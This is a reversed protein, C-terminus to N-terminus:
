CVPMDLGIQVDTPFKRVHALVDDLRSNRFLVPTRVGRAHAVRREIAAHTQADCTAIDVYPIFTCHELDIADSLLPNRTTNKFRNAALQQSLWTGPSTNPEAKLKPWLELRDMPSLRAFVPALATIAAEAPAIRKVLGARESATLAYSGNAVCWDVAASADPQQGLALLRTSTVVIAEHLHSMRPKSPIPTARPVEKAALDALHAVHQITRQEDLNSAADPHTLVDRVNGWSDFEIDRPEVWPEIEYPCVRVLGRIWFRELTSVVREVDEDRGSSLMDRLHAHSVILIVMHERLAALLEDFEIKARGDGLDLLDASDLYLRPWRNNFQDRVRALSDDSMGDDQRLRTAFARVASIPSNLRRRTRDIHFRRLRVFDDNFRLRTMAVARAAHAIGGIQLSSTAASTSRV